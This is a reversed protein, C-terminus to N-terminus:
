DDIEEKEEKLEPHANLYNPWCVDHVDREMHRAQEGKKIAKRCYLCRRKQYINVQLVRDMPEDGDSTQKVLDLAPVKAFMRNDREKSFGIQEDLVVEVVLRGTETIVGWVNEGFLAIRNNTQIEALHIPKNKM